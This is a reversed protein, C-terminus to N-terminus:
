SGGGVFQDCKLLDLNKGEPIVAVWWTVIALDGLSRDRDPTPIGSDAMLSSQHLLLV